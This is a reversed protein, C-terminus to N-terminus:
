REIRGLIWDKFMILDCIKAKITTWGYDKKGEWALPRNKEFYLHGVWAFPYVVFPIVPILLWYQNYVVFVIFLITALVGMVHFRRCWKNQHLTLYFQYYEKFSM